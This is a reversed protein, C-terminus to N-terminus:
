FSERFPSLFGKASVSVNASVPMESPSSSARFSRPGCIPQLVTKM